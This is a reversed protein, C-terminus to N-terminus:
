DCLLPRSFFRDRVADTVRLLGLQRQRARTRVAM